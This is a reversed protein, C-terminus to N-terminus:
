QFEVYKFSIQSDKGLCSDCYSWITNYHLSSCRISSQSYYKGCEHPRLYQYDAIIMSIDKICLLKNLETVVEFRRLKEPDEIESLKVYIQKLSNHRDKTFIETVFTNNLWYLMNALGKIFSESDTQIVNLNYATIKIFIIYKKMPMNPFFKDFGNNSIFRCTSCYYELNTHIVNKPDMCIMPSMEIKVDKSERSIVRYAETAGQIFEESISFQTLKGSKKDTITLFSM